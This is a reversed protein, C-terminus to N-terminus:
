QEALFSGEVPRAMGLKGVRLFTFFSILHNQVFLIQFPSSCPDVAGNDAYPNSARLTDRWEKAKTCLEELKLTKLNREEM